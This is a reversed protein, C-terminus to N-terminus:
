SSGEPFEVYAEDRLRRIWLKIKEQSKRKTLLLKVQQRQFGETEDSERRDLVELIHWGYRSLFPESLQKIALSGLMKDFKPVTDGPNMWDLMGGDAASGKDDSNSRALDAFSDGNVIRERLESM